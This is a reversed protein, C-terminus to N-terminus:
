EGSADEVKRVKKVYDVVIIDGEKIGMVECIEKKIVVMLSTGSSIVKKVDRM